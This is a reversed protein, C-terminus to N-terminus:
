KAHLSYDNVGAVRDGARVGRIEPYFATVAISLAVGLALGKLAALVTMEPLLAFALLSICVAAILLKFFMVLRMGSM